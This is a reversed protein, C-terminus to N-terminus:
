YNFLDNQSYKKDEVLANLAWLVKGKINPTIRKGLRAKQVQKHTLQQTSIKVLDDNSFSKEKLIQDLPQVDFDSKM